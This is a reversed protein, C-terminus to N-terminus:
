VLKAREVAAPLAQGSAANRTGAVRVRQTKKSNAAVCNM